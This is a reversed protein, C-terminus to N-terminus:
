AAIMKEKALPKADLFTQTPTKGFCWRGQHPREDNYERIWNDLDAQLEEISRYIKRGSRSAIFSTSRRRTFDSSSAMPRRVKQKQWLIVDDQEFSDRRQEAGYRRGEGQAALPVVPEAQDRAEACCRLCERWSIRGRRCDGAERGREVAAPCRCRDFLAASFQRWVYARVYSWHHDIM